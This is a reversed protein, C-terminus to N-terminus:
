AAPRVIQRVDMDLAVAILHLDEVTYPSWGHWRSRATPASVRLASRLATKGLGRRAFLARVEGAVREAFGGAMCSARRSTSAATSPHSSRAERVIPRGTLYVNFRPQLDRVTQAELAMATERDACETSSFSVALDHWSSRRSHQDMRRKLNGTMGVYLAAGTDDLYAYVHHTM